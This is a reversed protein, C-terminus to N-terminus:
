KGDYSLDPSLVSGNTLKQGKLRGRQVVSDALVDRVRPKDGFPDSLVHISGGPLVNIGYYQDCMHNFTARHRTIFLIEDFDLLPNAFAIRRRLQCAKGFLAMRQKEDTVPVKRCATRLKKLEAEMPALNAAKPMNKIDRLLATTRRLVVDLPDRDSDLILADSSFVQDAHSAIRTRNQIDRRITEYQMELETRPSEVITGSAENTTFTLGKVLFRLEAISTWPRGNVESLARLRAYRGRVPVNLRIVNETNRKAFTGTVVPRGFDRTDDSVYLEFDRITGNSGDRRPLYGFGSIDRPEGLDVVIDHPHGSEGRGWFTHWITQPDGDMARRAEYGMAQSDAAVKVMVSKPAGCAVVQWVTMAAITVWRISHRLTM